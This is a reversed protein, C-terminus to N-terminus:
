SVGFQIIQMHDDAEYACHNLRGSDNLAGPILIVLHIRRDEGGHTVHLEICLYATVCRGGNPLTPRRQGTGFLDAQQCRARGTRLNQWRFQGPEQAAATAILHSALM